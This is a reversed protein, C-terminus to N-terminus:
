IELRALHVHILAHQTDDALAVALAQDWEAFLCHAPQLLEHVTWPEFDQELSLRVKQKRGPAAIAHRALREPVDDLAICLLGTHLLRQRRVGQPMRKCSMQEIM